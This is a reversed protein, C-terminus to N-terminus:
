AAGAGSQRWITPFWDERLREGNRQNIGPYPPSTRGPREIYVADDGLFRCSFARRRNGGTNGNAGHVTRYNFLIADGPELAPALIRFDGNEVDPLDMFQEQDAYFDEGGAWRKPRLLKPWLHSGLVLRLTNDSTVPDLPLWYSATQMGDVCYYPMDQHWPTKKATGPEKVLVHDHFIQSSRSGMLRGAIEAAPSTTVFAAFEPIRQWNCYDDFFRGGGEGPRVNEAGYPGPEAMNRAVGARLPEVWDAFAGRLVIAGDAAYTAIDAATIQM